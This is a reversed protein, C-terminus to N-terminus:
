KVEMRPCYKDKYGSWMTAIWGKKKAKKPKKRFILNRIGLIITAITWSIAWLGGIVVLVFVAGAFPAAYYKWTPILDWRQFVHETESLPLTGILSAIFFVVLVVLTILVFHKVTKWFYPCFNTQEDWWWEPQDSVAKNFRHIWSNKNIEIM